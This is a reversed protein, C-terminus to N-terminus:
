TPIDGQLRFDRSSAGISFSIQGDPKCWGQAVVDWISLDYRSLTISAQETSSPSIEVNTFGKLVSPPKSASSPFHIYQPIEMGSVPGTNTVKFTVQFAPERWLASSSGEAIPSAKGNEWAAILDE